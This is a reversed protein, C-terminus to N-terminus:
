VQIVKECTVAVRLLADTRAAALQISCPLGATTQGSPLAIAPHGTLNFLQTLRLMLSRVPQDIGDVRVVSAGIPPAPIPLTPLVLADHGALAADVERKLVQRESLARLYDDASIERGIELRQRVPVTYREPMNVLTAAHHAAAEAPAIRLYISAIDPAHRIAIEDVQAGASRLGAVAEEFRSRVDVDLVDCFYPRPVALRLQDRPVPIPASASVDGLLARYVLAADAATSTLPGVHDLTHSLPVVGATPVESYAPKLGVIGCAAAPIRISGGTDSGMAMFVMDSAVASASGGSSGGPICDTNWPNRITGFHPNNSTVGYALEHMGTKGILIAGASDLKEVVAADRDPVFDAFLKSTHPLETHRICTCEM